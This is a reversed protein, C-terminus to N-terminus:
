VRRMECLHNYQQQASHKDARKHVMKYLEREGIYMQVRDERAWIVHEGWFPDAKYFKYVEFMANAPDLEESFIV